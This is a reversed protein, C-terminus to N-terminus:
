CMWLLSSKIVCKQMGHLKGWCQKSNSFAYHKNATTM